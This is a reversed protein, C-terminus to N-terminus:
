GAQDTQTTTIALRDTQHSTLARWMSPHRVILGGTRTHRCRLRIEFVPLVGSNDYGDFYDERAQRDREIEDDGVPVWPCVETWVGHRHAEIMLRTMTSEDYSGLSGTYLVSVMGDECLEVGAGIIRGALPLNYLSGLSAGLVHICRAHEDGIPRGLNQEFWAVHRSHAPRGTPIPADHAAVTAREVMIADAIESPSMDAPVPWGSAATWGEGRCYVRELQQRTEFWTQMLLSIKESLRRNEARASRLRALLRPSQDGSM